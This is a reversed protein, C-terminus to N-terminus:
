HHSAARAFGRRRWVALRSGAYQLLRRAVGCEDAGHRSQADLGGCLLKAAELRVIAAVLREVGRLAAPCASSKMSKQALRTHFLALKPILYVYPPRVYYLALTCRVCVPADAMRAMLYM